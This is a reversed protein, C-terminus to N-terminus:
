ARTIVLINNKGIVKNFLLEQKPYNEKLYQYNYGDFLYSGNGKEFQNSCEEFIKFFHLKIIELDKSTLSQPKTM